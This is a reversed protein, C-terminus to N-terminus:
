RPLQNLSIRPITGGEYTCKGSICEVISNESARKEYYEPTVIVMADLVSDERATGKAVSGGLIVAIIEDRDSFYQILNQISEDHHQYM